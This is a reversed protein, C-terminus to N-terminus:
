RELKWLIELEQFREVANVGSFPTQLKKIAYEKRSKNELVHFVKGFTGEGLVGLLTFNSFYDIYVQKRLPLSQILCNLNEKNLLMFHILPGADKRKCPTSPTKMPSSHLSKSKLKGSSNWEPKVLKTPQPTSFMSKKKPFPATFM